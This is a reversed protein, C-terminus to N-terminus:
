TAARLSFLIPRAEMGQGALGTSVYGAKPRVSLQADGHVAPVWGPPTAALDVIPPQRPTTLPAAQATTCTLLTVLVLAWLVRVLRVPRMM